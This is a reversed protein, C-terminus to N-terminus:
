ADALAGEIASVLEAVTFPQGQVKNYALADLLFEARVLRWLQGMNLECVLVRKYRRLIDELDAPFPNLWRLHLHATGHFM